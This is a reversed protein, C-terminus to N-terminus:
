GSRTSRAPMSAIAARSTRSSSARHRLGIPRDATQVNEAGVLTVSDQMCSHCRARPATRCGAWNNAACTARVGSAHRYTELVLDEAVGLEIRAGILQRMVQAIQRRVSVTTPRPTSREGRHKIPSKPMRLAAAGIQREIGAIRGLTQGEHELVGL